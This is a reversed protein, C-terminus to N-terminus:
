APATSSASGAPRLMFVKVVEALGSAQERLSQSAAASQEVLGANQQTMQDLESIAQTVQGISDSQEATSANLEAMLGTVREVAAVIEAMTRGADEVLRAGSAVSLVSDGILGKIERAAQASRQALNRVEAAVVAFGRGQEGARAAEVAANLALINTQFAIGDIVGIIDGIKRSAATIEDMNAVVQGVVAGGRTAAQAASGVLAHAQRVSEANHQVTETLQHMSASTQQLSSATSETRKSLDQQGSAIELAATGITSSAQDVHGIAGAIRQLASQLLRAAPSHAELGAGDLALREGQELRSVLQHLEHGQVADRRMREGILIEFGTQVVVYGAHLLVIAFDPESTCYVPFGLAQLRDFAVHHVAIAGAGIALPKWDRYLLLFALTVFVGFHYEIRGMGLQIQLAVAAMLLVPFTCRALLTGRALAHLALGIAMLLGAAGLALGISGQAFGLGAAVLCGLTLAGMMWTDAQRRLSALDLSASAEALSANM